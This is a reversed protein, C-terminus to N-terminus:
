CPHAHPREIDCRGLIVPVRSARLDADTLPGSVPVSTGDSAAFVEVRQRNVQQGDITLLSNDIKAGGPPSPPVMVYSNSM